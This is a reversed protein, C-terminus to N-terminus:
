TDGRSSQSETSGQPRQLGRALEPALAALEAPTDVDPPPPHPFPVLLLRGPNRELFGRAGRDGELRRLEPFQSAAFVVPNGRQGRYSPAVIPLRSARWARLLRQIVEVPVPQDGPAVLAAEAAPGLAEVGARVSTSMGEAFRPNLVFEVPLGTLAARVADAERGLVVLTRDVGAALVQEVSWRVLPWGDLPALMKQEGFRRAAGAALVLAAIV